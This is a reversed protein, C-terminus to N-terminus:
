HKRTKVKMALGVLSRAYIGELDIIPKKPSYVDCALEDRFYEMETL